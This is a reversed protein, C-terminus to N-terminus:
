CGVALAKCMRKHQKWHQNQCEKNCYHFAVCRACSKVMCIGVREGIKEKRCNHCKAVKPKSMAQKYKKDLCNCYKNKQLRRMMSRDTDDYIDRCYKAAKAISFLNAFHLEEGDDVELNADDTYSIDGLLLNIGM